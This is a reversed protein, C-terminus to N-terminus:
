DRFEVVHALLWYRLTNAQSFQICLGVLEDNIRLDYGGGAKSAVVDIM